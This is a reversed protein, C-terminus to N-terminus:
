GHRAGAAPISPRRANVAHLRVLDVLVIEGAPYAPHIIAAFGGSHYVFVRMRGKGSRGVWSFLARTTSRAEHRDRCGRGRRRM